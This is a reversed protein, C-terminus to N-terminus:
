QEAVSPSNLIVSPQLSSFGQVLKYKLPCREILKQLLTTIFTQCETKFTLKRLDSASAPMAKLAGFGQNNKEQVYKRLYPLLVIVRDVVDVNEVWRHSCFKKPFIECDILHIFDSRRAPSDKFRYYCSSLFSKLRWAVKKHAFQFAGHLLHLGCSGILLMQPDKPDPTLDDVRNTNEDWFQVHVDMQSQQSIRNFAEDFSVVFADVEKVKKCLIDYIFPAIIFSVVYSM